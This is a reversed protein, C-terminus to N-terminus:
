EIPLLRDLYAVMRGLKTGIPLATASMHHNWYTVHDRLAVQDFPRTIDYVCPWWPFNDDQWIQHNYLDHYHLYSPKLKDRSRMLGRSWFTMHNWLCCIHKMGLLITGPHVSGLKTSMLVLPSIIIKTQWKIKWSWMILPDYSKIPLLGVLDTVMRSRNTGMLM